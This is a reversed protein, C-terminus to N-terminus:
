DFTFFSTAPNTDKLAPDYSFVVDPQPSSGLRVISRIKGDSRWDINGIEEQGDYVLQGLEDYKYNGYDVMGVGAVPPKMNDIDDPYVGANVADNVHYLRNFKRGYTANDYRYKLSDIVDDMEDKRWQKEINSNADYGFTNEFM